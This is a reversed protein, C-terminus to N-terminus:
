LLGSGKECLNYIEEYKEDILPTLRKAARNVLSRYLFYPSIWGIFGPVALVICLWVQPPTATVSFTSGAIFATGIIGIMLSCLIARSTKAKKLAALEDICGEFNRQLRTLETKNIIRRDRKLNLTISGKTKMAAINDDTTWGFCQYCDLLLSAHDIATIVEKYEYGVFEKGSMTIESM